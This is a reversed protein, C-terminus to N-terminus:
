DGVVAVAVVAQLMAAVAAAMLLLHLQHEVVKLTLWLLQAQMVPM